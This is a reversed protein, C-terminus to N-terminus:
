QNYKAKVAGWSTNEAPVTCDSIYLQMTIFDWWGGYVGTPNCTGEVIFDPYTAPKVQSFDTSGIEVGNGVTFVMCATPYNDFHGIAAVNTVAHTRVWNVYQHTEIEEYSDIVGFYDADGNAWPGSGSLWLYGGSFVKKYTRNGTGTTPNVNDSIVTPAVQESSCWYRWQLALDSGNWSAANLTTGLDLAGNPNVFCETYRGTNVPGGIDTSDYTGNIPPGAFAIGAVLLSLLALLVITCHRM